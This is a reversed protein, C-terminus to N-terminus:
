SCFKFLDHFNYGNTNTCRFESIYLYVLLVYINISMYWLLFMNWYLSSSVFWWYDASFM